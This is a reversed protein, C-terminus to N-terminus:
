KILDKITAKFLQFTDQKLNEIPKQISSITVKQELKFRNEPLSIHVKYGWAQINQFKNLHPPLTFIQTGIDVVTGYITEEDTLKVIPRILVKQGIKLGSKIDEHIYGEVFTPYATKMTIIPEYAKIIEGSTCKVTDIVGKNRAYIPIISQNKKLLQKQKYLSKLEEIALNDSYNLKKLLTNKKTQYLKKIQKQKQKLQKSKINQDSNNYIISSDISHLLQQNTKFTERIQKLKSDILSYEQKEQIKLLNIDAQITDRYLRQKEIRQNISNTITSVEKEIDEPHEDKFSM